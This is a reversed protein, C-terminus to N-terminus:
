VLKAFDISANLQSFRMKSYILAFRVNLNKWIPKILTKISYLTYYNLYSIVFILQKPNERLRVKLIAENAAFQEKAIGMYKFNIWYIVKDISITFSSSKELGHGQFIKANKRDFNTKSIRVKHHVNLRQVCNDVRSTYNDLWFLM